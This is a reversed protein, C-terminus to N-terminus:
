IEETNSETESGDETDDDESTSGESESGTIPPQADVPKPEEKVVEVEAQGQAQAQEPGAAPSLCPKEKPLDEIIPAPRAEIDPEAATEGVEVTAAEATIVWSKQFVIGPFATTVSPKMSRDIACVRPFVVALVPDAGFGSSSVTELAVTKDEMLRLTLWDRNARSADTSVEFHSECRQVPEWATVVDCLTEALSSKAKECLAESLLSQIPQIVGNLASEVRFAKVKEMEEKVDEGECTSLLLSRLRNKKKTDTMRSLIFRVEDDDEFLYNPTLIYDELSKALLAMVLMTRSSKDSAELPFATVGPMKGELDPWNVM